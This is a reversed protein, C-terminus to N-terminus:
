FNARESEITAALFCGASKQLVIPALTSTRTPGASNPNHGMGFRTAPAALSM